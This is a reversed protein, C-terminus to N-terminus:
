RSRSVRPIRAKIEDPIIPKGTALTYVLWFAAFLFVLAGLWNLMRRVLPPKIKKPTTAENLDARCHGCFRAPMLVGKGCNPCRLTIEKPVFRGQTDASM